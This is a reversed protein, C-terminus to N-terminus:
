QQVLIVDADKYTTRVYKRSIVLDRSIEPPVPDSGTIILNNHVQGDALM